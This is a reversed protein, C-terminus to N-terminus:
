FRKINWFKRTGRWFTLLLFFWSLMTGQNTTLFASTNSSTMQLSRWRGNSMIWCAHVQVANTTPTIMYMYKIRLNILVTLPIFYRCCSLFFDDALYTSPQHIQIQININLISSWHNCLYCLGHWCGPSARQRKRLLSCSFKLSCAFLRLRVHTATFHLRFGALFISQVRLSVLDASPFEVLSMITIVVCAPRWFRDRRRRIQFLIAARPRLM